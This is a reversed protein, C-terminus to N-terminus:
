CVYVGVYLSCSWLFFVACLGLLCGCVCGQCVGVSVALELVGVCVARVFVWACLSDFVWVAYDLACACCLMIWCVCVCLMIWCVGGCLVCLM